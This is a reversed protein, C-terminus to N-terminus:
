QEKKSFRKLRTAQYLMTLKCETTPRILGTSKNSYIRKTSTICWYGVTDIRLNPCTNCYARLKTLENKIQENKKM